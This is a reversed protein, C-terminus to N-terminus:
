FPTQYLADHLVRPDGEAGQPEQLSQISQGRGSSQTNALTHLPLADYGGEVVVGLLLLLLMVVVVVFIIIINM